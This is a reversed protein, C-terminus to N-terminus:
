KILSRFIIIQFLTIPALCHSYLLIIVFAKVQAIAQKNVQTFVKKIAGKL